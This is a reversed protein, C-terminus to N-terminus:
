LWFANKIREIIRCKAKRNDTETAPGIIRWTDCDIIQASTLKKRKGALKFKLVTNNISNLNQQVRNYHKLLM